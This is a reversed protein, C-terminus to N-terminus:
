GRWPYRLSPPTVAPNHELPTLGVFWQGTTQLLGCVSDTSLKNRRVWNAVAASYHPALPDRLDWGPPTWGSFGHMTPIGRYLGILMADMQQWIWDGPRKPDGLLYFSQCASPPSSIQALRERQERKSFNPTHMNAQEVLLLALVAYGAIRVLRSRGTAVLQSIFISVTIVVPLALVVNFRYVSRIASAGPVLEYVLWWGSWNNGIRVMLVFCILVSIGLVAALWYQDRAPTSMRNDPDASQAMLQATAYVTAALFTVSLIPTIAFRLETFKPREDLWPLAQELLRGWVVNHYSVNVYDVVAPLMEAVEAFPRGGFEKVIPVYTLLLPLLALAAINAMLLLHVFNIRIWTVADRAAAKGNSLLAIAATVTVAILVFAAFYWAIYFSSFAVLGFLLCLAGGLLHRRRPPDELRRRYALALLALYPLFATGALLQPHNLALFQSNSFMYVASGIAAVVPNLRLLGRLLFLCGVYGLAVLVFLTGQFAVFIDFTAFRYTGLARIASYILSPLFLADTYGLTGRTPYYFPPSQWSANGQYTNWWHELTFIILRVDGQDGPIADFRTLPLIRFFAILFIAGIAIQAVVEFARLAASRIDESKGAKDAGKPVRAM